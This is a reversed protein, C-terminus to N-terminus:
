SFQAQSQAIRFAAVWGPDTFNPINDSDLVQMAPSHKRRDERALSDRMEAYIGHFDQALQQWAPEGSRSFLMRCADAQALKTITDEVLVPVDNDAVLKAITARYSVMHMLRANPVPWWEVEKVGNNGDFQTIETYVLPTGHLIRIPDQIDVLMANQRNLFWQPGAIRLVREADLPLPFRLQNIEYKQDTLDVDEWDQSLTLNTASNVSSIRIQARQGLRFYRGVMASTWTTGVGVVSFSTNAVSATGATVPALSTVVIQRLTEVWPRFRLLQGYANNIIFKVNGPDASATTLQNPSLALVANQMDQFSM